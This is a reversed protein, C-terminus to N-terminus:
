SFAGRTHGFWRMVSGRWPARPKNSTECSPAPLQKAIELLRRRFEFFDDNVKKCAMWVERLQAPTLLDAQEDTLTTLRQIDRLTTDALIGDGVLDFSHSEIKDSWEKVWLRIEAVTLERLGVAVPGITIERAVDIM